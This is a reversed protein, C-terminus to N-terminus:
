ECTSYTKEDSNVAGMDGAFVLLDYTYCRYADHSEIDLFRAEDTFSQGVALNDSSFAVASDVVTDGSILRFEASASIDVSSNNTFTVNFLPAGSSSMGEEVSIAVEDASIDGGVSPASPNGPVGVSNGCGILLGLVMLFSFVRRM